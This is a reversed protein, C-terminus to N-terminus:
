SQSYEDSVYFFCNKMRPQLIKVTICIDAPHSQGNANMQQQPVHM